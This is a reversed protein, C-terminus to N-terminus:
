VEALQVLTVEVTDVREGVRTKAIVRIGLLDRLFREHGDEARHEHGDFGRQAEEEGDAARDAHGDGDELPSPAGLQQMGLGAGDQAEHGDDEHGHQEPERHVVLHEEDRTHALLVHM